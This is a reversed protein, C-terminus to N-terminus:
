LKLIITSLKRSRVFVSLERDQVLILLCIEVAIDEERGGRERYKHIQM